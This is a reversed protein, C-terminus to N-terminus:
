KHPLEVTFNASQGPLCFVFGTPVEDGEPYKVDATSVECKFVGEARQILAYNKGGENILKGDVVTGMGSDNIGEVIAARNEKNHQMSVTGGVILTLTIGIMAVILLFGMAGLIDLFVEKTLIKTTKVIKPAERDRTATPAGNSRYGNEYDFTSGDSWVTTEPAAQAIKTALDTSPTDKTM